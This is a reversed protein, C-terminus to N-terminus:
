EEKDKAEPKRGTSGAMLALLIAVINEILAKITAFVEPNAALCATNDGAVRCSIGIVALGSFIVVVVFAFLV